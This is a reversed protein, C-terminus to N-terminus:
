TAEHKAPALGCPAVAGMHSVQDGWAAPLQLFGAACQCCRLIRTSCCHRLALQGFLTSCPQLPGLRLLRLAQRLCKLRRLHSVVDNQGRSSTGIAAWIPSGMGPLSTGMLLPQQAQPMQRVPSCNVPAQCGHQYLLPRDACLHENLVTVSMGKPRAQNACRVSPPSLHEAASEAATCSLTATLGSPLPIAQCRGGGEACLARM